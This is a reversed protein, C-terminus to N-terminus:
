KKGKEIETLREIIPTYEANVDKVERDFDALKAESNGIQRKLRDIAEQVGDPVPKGAQESRAATAIEDDLKMQLQALNNEEYSISLELADIKRDRAREADDPGAYLRLLEKDERAQRAREMRLKRAEEDNLNVGEVEELVRGHSDLLQYGNRIANTSLTRNLHVVGDPTVHRFYAGQPMVESALKGSRAWLPASVALALVLVLKKM